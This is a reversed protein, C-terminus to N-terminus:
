RRHTPTSPTKEDQIVTPEQKKENSISSLRKNDAREEPIGIVSMRTSLSDRKRQEAKRQMAETLVKAVVAVKKTDAGALFTSGIESKRKQLLTVTNKVVQSKKNFPPLKDFQIDSMTAINALTKRTDLSLSKYIDKRREQLLTQVEPLQTVEGISKKMEEPHNKTCYNIYAQKTEPKILDEQNLEVQKAIVPAWKEMDWGPHIPIFYDNLYGEQLTLAVLEAENETLISLGKYFHLMNANLDSPEGPNNTEPGHQLLFDFYGKTVQSHVDDNICDAILLETPTIIGATESFKVVQDYAKAIAESSPAKGDLHTKIEIYSTLLDSQDQFKGTHFQKNMDFKQLSKLFAVDGGVWLMDADGTIPSGNRTLVDLPKFEKENPLQYTVPYLQECEYEKFQDLYESTVAQQNWPKFESATESTYEPSKGEDLNICFTIARKDVKGKGEEKDHDDYVTKDEQIAHFKLLRGEQQIQYKGAEADILIESLTLSLPASGFSTDNKPLSDLSKSHPRGFTAQDLPIFGAVLPPDKCTKTKVAMPKPSVAFGKNTNPPQGARVALTVNKYLTTAVASSTFAIPFDASMYADLDHKM